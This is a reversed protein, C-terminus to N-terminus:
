PGTHLGLETVDYGCLSGHYEISTATIALHLDFSCSASDNQGQWDLDGTMAATFGTSDANSTWHLDGDLTGQLEHCGNFSTTLDFAAHDDNGDGTYTGNLAISGGLTCAGNFALSLDAPATLATGRAQTVARSQASSMAVSASAFVQVSEDKTPQNSCAAAFVISLVLLRKM